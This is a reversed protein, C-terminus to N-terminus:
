IQQGLEFTHKTIRFTCRDSGRLNEIAEERYRMSNM